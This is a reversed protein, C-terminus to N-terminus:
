IIINVLGHRDNFLYRVSILLFFVLSLDVFTTRSSHFQILNHQKVIKCISVQEFHVIFVGSSHWQRREPKKM